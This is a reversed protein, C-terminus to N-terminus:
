KGTPPVRDPGPYLFMDAMSYAYEYAADAGCEGAIAEDFLNNENADNGILLSKGLSSIETVIPEMEPGFPTENLELALSLLDETWGSVNQICIQVNEGHM